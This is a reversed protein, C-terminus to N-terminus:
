DHIFKLKHSISQFLDPFTVNIVKDFTDITVENQVSSTDNLIQFM